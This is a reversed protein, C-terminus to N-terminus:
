VKLVRELQFQSVDGYTRMVPTQSSPMRAVLHAFFRVYNGEYSGQNWLQLVKETFVGNEKSEMSAQNHQCGLFVIVSPGKSFGGFQPVSKQRGDYFRSNMGYVKQAIVPPMLRPRLGEPAPDPDPMFPRTVSGSPSSDSVLLVRVGRAFDSIACHVEDDIVQADHLCWTEDKLDMEDGSVDDVQGGHASVTLLFFDGAVLEKGAAQLAALMNARTADLTHLVKPKMGARRAIAAMDTADRDSAKLEGKWGAYHKPDVSNVGIHLSLARPKAM